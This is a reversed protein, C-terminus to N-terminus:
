LVNLSSNQYVGDSPSIPMEYENPDRSEPVRPKSSGSVEIPSVYDYSDDIKLTKSGSSSPGKYLAQYADDPRPTGVDVSHSQNEDVYENSSSAMAINSGAVSPGKILPQYTNDPSDLDAYFAPNKHVNDDPSPSMPGAPSSMSARVTQPPKSSVRGCVRMGFLVGLCVALCVLTIGLLAWLASGGSWASRLSRGTIDPESTETVTTTSGDDIVTQCAPGDWGSLCTGSFCGGTVSNCGSAGESCRCTKSCSDFCGVYVDCYTDRSPDTVYGNACADDVDVCYGTLQDCTVTPCHCVKSCHEGYFGDPCTEPVQCSPGSWGNECEGPCEGSFIDCASGGSCHCTQNCDVGYLGAECTRYCKGTYGSMCNCGYPDPRCIQSGACSINLEQGLGCTIDCDSGFRHRGCATLCNDGIFGPPCICLGSLDHCIGGNYCPDCIGLCTPPGWRGAPCDPVILQIISGNFGFTRCNDTDYIKAVYTGEHKESTSTEAHATDGLYPSFIDGRDNTNSSMYFTWALILIRLGDLRRVKNMGLRARTGPYATVTFRGLNPQADRGPVLHFASVTTTHEDFESSIGCVIKGAAHYNSNPDLLLEHVASSTPTSLSVISSSIHQTLADRTDYTVHKCVAREQQQRTIALVKLDSVPAFPNSVWLYVDAPRKIVRHFDSHECVFSSPSSCNHEQWRGHAILQVCHSNAHCLSTDSANWATFTHNHSSGDIWQYDCNEEPDTLGFWVSQNGILTQVFDNIERTKLQALDGGFKQCYERADQFTRRIDVYRYSSHELAHWDSSGSTTGVALLIIYLVSFSIILAMKKM